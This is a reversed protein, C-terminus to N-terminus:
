RRVQVIHSARIEYPYDISLILTYGSLYNIDAPLTIECTTRPFASGQVYLKQSPCNVQLTEATTPAASLPCEYINTSGFRYSGDPCKVCPSIGGKASCESAPAGIDGTLPIAFNQVSGARVICDQPTGGVLSAKCDRERLSTDYYNGNRKVTAKVIYSEDKLGTFRYQLNADGAIYGSVLRATTIYKGGQTADETDRLEYLIAEVEDYGRGNSIVSVTGSIQKTGGQGSDVSESVSAAGNVLVNGADIADIRGAGVNAIDIYMYLKKDNRKVVPMKESFTVTARLRGDDHVYVPSATLVGGKAQEIRYEDESMASIANTGSLTADFTARAKIETTIVDQEIADPAVIMCERSAFSSEKVDGIAFNCDKLRLCSDFYSEEGENALIGRCEAAAGADYIGVNVNRLPTEGANTFDLAARGTGSTFLDDPSVSVSFANLSPPAEMSVCGAALLVFLFFLTKM